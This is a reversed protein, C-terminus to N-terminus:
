DSQQQPPHIEPKETVALALSKIKMDGELARAINVKEVAKKYDEIMEQRISKAKKLIEFFDLILGDRKKKLLNYGGDALKIKKKLAMLESRTPKVNQTM